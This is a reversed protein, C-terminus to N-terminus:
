GTRAATELGDAIPKLAAYFVNHIPTEVGHRKGLRVVDGSLYEHEIPKGRRLDDLMSAHMHGPMGMVFEWNDEILDDPLSPDVAKGVRHTEAIGNRFLEASTENERLPGVDLGTLTTLSALTAQMCFKSWLEHGINGAIKPTTGAHDLVARLAECRQTKSGDAEGFMLVDVAARLSIVGPESVEGSIRAVGPVVHQMGVIAGLREPATVGNQSTVVLTNAGIMPLIQEGASEVDRNKVMFLVVDVPGVSAPDDTAQVATLHLDGKPSIIKLGHTRIADLHDGRAIFTVDQGAHALRGGFYGGLTGAGMIAIKM